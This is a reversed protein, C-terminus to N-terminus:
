DFELLSSVSPKKLKFLPRSPIAIQSFLDKEHSIKVERFREYYDCISHVANIVNVTISFSLENLKENDTIENLSSIAQNINNKAVQYFIDEM